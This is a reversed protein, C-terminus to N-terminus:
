VSHILSVRRVDSFRWSLGSIDRECISLLRCLPGTRTRVHGSWAPRAPRGPPRGAPHSPQAAWADSRTGVPVNSSNPSDIPSSSALPQPRALPQSWCSWPAFPAGARTTPEGPFRRGVAERAPAGRRQEQQGGVTDGRTLTREGGDSEWETPGRRVVTVTLNSYQHDRVKGSRQRLGPWIPNCDPQGTRPLALLQDPRREERRSAVAGAGSPRIRRCQVRLGRCCTTGSSRRSGPLGPVWASPHRTRLRNRDLSGEHCWGQRRGM